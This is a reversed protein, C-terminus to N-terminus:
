NFFKTTAVVKMVYELYAVSVHLKLTFPPGQNQPRSPYHIRQAHDFRYSLTVLKNSPLQDIASKSAAVKDKYYYRQRKALELHEQAM